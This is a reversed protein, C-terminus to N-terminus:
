FWNISKFMFYISTFFLAFFLLIIGGSPMSPNESMVICASIGFSVFLNFQTILKWLSDKRIYSGTPLKIFEDM